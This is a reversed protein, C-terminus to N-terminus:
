GTDLQQWVAEGVQARIKTYEEPHLWDALAYIQISPNVQKMAPVVSSLLEAYRSLNKATIEANNLAGREIWWENGIIFSRVPKARYSYSSVISKATRVVSIFATRHKESDDDKVVPSDPIIFQAQPVMAVFVSPDM